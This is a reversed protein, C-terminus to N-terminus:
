PRYSPLKACGGRSRLLGGCPKAERCRIRLQDADLRSGVKASTELVTDGLPARFAALPSCGDVADQAAFLALLMARNEFTATGKTASDDASPRVVEVSTPVAPECRPLRDDAVGVCLGVRVLCEDPTEGLDCTPDGDTCEITTSPRNARSQPMLWEVLCDDSSEGGGGAVLRRALCAKGPASCTGHIWIPSSWARKDNPQTVRAYFFSNPDTVDAEAVLSCTATDCTRARVVDGNRLLEVQVPTATGTVDVRATVTSGLAADREEGMPAGDITLELLIREGNTAYCRRERLAELLGDRDLWALDCATLGTGILPTEADTKHDDSVGVMGLRFGARLAWLTGGFLRENDDFHSNWVEVNTTVTDDVHHWPVPLELGNWAGAKTLKGAPHNVHAAAAGERVLSAYYAYFEAMTRCSYSPGPCITTDDARFYANLHYTQAQTWEIGSLALFTGPMDFSAATTKVIEWENDTLFIDHDTLVVFDLGVLDRAVIFFDAPTAAGVLPDPASLTSHAHLDGFYVTGTAPGGTALCLGSTAMAVAVARLRRGSTWRVNRLLHM